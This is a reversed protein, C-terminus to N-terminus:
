LLNWVCFDLKTWIPPPSSPSCSISVFCTEWRFYSRWCYCNERYFSEHCALINTVSINIYKRSYIRNRRSYKIMNSAKEIVFDVKISVTPLLAKQVYVRWVTSNTKQPPQRKPQTFTHIYMHTRVHTHPHTPPHHGNRSSFNHTRSAFTNRCHKKWTSLDPHCSLTSVAVCHLICM